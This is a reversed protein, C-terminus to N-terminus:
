FYYRRTEDTNSFRMGIDEFPLDTMIDYNIGPQEGKPVEDETLYRFGNYNGTSHLVNEVCSILGQRYDPTLYDSNKLAKNIDDKIAQVSITKKM